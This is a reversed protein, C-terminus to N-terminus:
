RNQFRSFHVHDEVSVQVVILPGKWHGKSRDLGSGKKDAAAIVLINASSDDWPPPFEVFREVAYLVGHRLSDNIHDGARAALFKIVHFLVVIRIRPLLERVLEHRSYMRQGNSVDVSRFERDPLDGRISCLYITKRNRFLCLWRVRLFKHPKALPKNNCKANQSDTNENDNCRWGAAIVEQLFKRQLSCGSATLIEVVDRHVTSCATRIQRMSGFDDNQVRVRPCRNSLNRAHLAVM